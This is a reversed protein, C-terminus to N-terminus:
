RADTSFLAALFLPAPLALLPRVEDPDAHEGVLVKVKKTVEDRISTAKGKAYWDAVATAGNARLTSVVESRKNSPFFADLEALGAKRLSALVPELPEKIAILTKFFSVLFPQAIGATQRPLRM